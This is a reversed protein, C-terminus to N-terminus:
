ETVDRCDFYPPAAGPDTVSTVVVTYSGQGSVDVDQYITDGQLSNIWGFLNTMPSINEDNFGPWIHEYVARQLGAEALYLSQTSRKESGSIDVDISTTTIAAIGILSLMVMIGLAVLLATGNQNRIPALM